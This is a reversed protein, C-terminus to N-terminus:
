AIDGPLPRLVIEEVVTQPALNCASWIVEAVDAPRMMREAPGEFGAWSDTLTPGPCVSTVKINFPKMEERLNKSFGLLAFKSVSYAGGNPYARLSATSCLNFIHGKRRAMMEPLLARSLYYAAYLNLAMTSELVGDEEAHLSGPVFIGANNVLVDTDGLGFKVKQAFAAVEEKRSMDAAVAIIKASENLRELDERAKAIREASLSCIAANWGESIFKEAVARGIGRSAGTIVINMRCILPFFVLSNGSIRIM